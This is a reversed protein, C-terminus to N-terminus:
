DAREADMFNTALIREGNRVTLTDRGESGYSVSALRRAQEVDGKILPNISHEAPDVVRLWTAREAAADCLPGDDIM